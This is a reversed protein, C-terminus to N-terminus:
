KSSSDQSERSFDHTDLFDALKSKNSATYFKVDEVQEVLIKVLKDVPLGQSPSATAHYNTESGYQIERQHRHLRTLERCEPFKDEDYFFYDSGNLDIGAFIINRYGLGIGFLALSFLSARNQFFFYKHLGLSLIVKLIKEQIELQPYYINAELPTTFEPFINVDISRKEKDDLSKWIINEIKEEKYRTFLKDRLFSLNDSGFKYPREIFYYNQKLDLICSYSLGAVDCSKIHNWQDETLDNLSNGCGLIFLTDSQKFKRFQSVLRIKTLIDQCALLKTLLRAVICGLIQLKNGSDNLKVESLKKILKRSISSTFRDLPSKSITPSTSM